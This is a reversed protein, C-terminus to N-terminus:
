DNTNFKITLSIQKVDNLSLKGKLKMEDVCKRLHYIGHSKRRTIESRDSNNFDKVAKAVDDIQSIKYTNSFQIVLYTDDIFMKAKYDSGYKIMNSFWDNLLFYMGEDNYKVKLNTIKKLFEGSYDIQMDDSFLEQINVLVFRILSYSTRKELHTVNFPNNNKNLVIKTRNTVATLMNNSKSVNKKLLGNLKDNEFLAYGGNEYYLNMTEILASIPGLRNKIFHMAREANSVFAAKNRIERLQTNLMTNTNVEFDNYRAIRNFAPLLLKLM